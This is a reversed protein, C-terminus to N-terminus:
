HAIEITVAIREVQPIHSDKSITQDATRRINDGQDFAVISVEIPIAAHIPKINEEPM